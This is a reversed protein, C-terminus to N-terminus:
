SKTLTHPCNPCREYQIGQSDWYAIAQAQQEPTLQRQTRSGLPATITVIEGREIMGEIRERTIAHAKAFARAPITGTPLDTAKPTKTGARRPQLAAIQEAQTTLIEQAQALQEALRVNRTALDALQEELAAIRQDSAALHRSQDNQTAEHDELRRDQGEFIMDHRDRERELSEVRGILLKYNNASIIETPQAEIPKITRGHETALRTLQDHTLFRIRNDLRSVQHSTDIGAKELWRQFTKYDVDLLARCEQLTYTQPM